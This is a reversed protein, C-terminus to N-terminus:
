RRATASPARPRPRPSLRRRLAVMSLGAAFLGASGSEPVASIRFNDLGAVEAGTTDNFELVVSLATVDSLAAALDGSWNAATLPAAFRHWSGDALPLGPGSGAIALSATAAAGVITVTGFWPASSLDPAANNVNKADFSLTGGLLSSLNGLFAAPAYVTMWTGDTDQQQLFGGGNGGSPVYSVAGGQGSWGELSADFTSTIQASALQPLLSVGLLGLARRFHVSNM